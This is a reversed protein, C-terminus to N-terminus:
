KIKIKQLNYLFYQVEVTEIQNNTLGDITPPPVTNVQHKPSIELALKIEELTYIGEM